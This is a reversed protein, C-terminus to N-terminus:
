PLLHYHQLMNAKCDYNTYLKWNPKPDKGLYSGGASSSLYCEASKSFVDSKGSM